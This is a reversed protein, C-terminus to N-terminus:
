DPRNKHELFGQLIFHAAIPDRRRRRKRPSLDADRLAVDAAYTTLREDFLEVPLGAANRLANAFERALRAQPGETGDMNLPLGVVFAEAGEARAHEAVLAADDRVSGRAPLTRLPRSFRGQQDSIALGIRATGYDIGMYRTM